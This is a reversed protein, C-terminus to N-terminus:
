GEHFNWLTGFGQESGQNGANNVLIEVGGVESISDTVMALDTVDFPVALAEGGATQIESVVSSAREPLFDNVLVTAGAQALMHCIGRGVGQGGGTVLARKGALEFDISM